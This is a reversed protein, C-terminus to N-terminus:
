VEPNVPIIQQLGLGALANQWDDSRFWKKFSADSIIDIEENSFPGSSFYHSAPEEGTASAGANFYQDTTLTQAAERDAALIIITAYTYNPISM